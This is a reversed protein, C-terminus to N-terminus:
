GRSLFNSSSGTPCRSPATACFWTALNVVSGAATFGIAIWCHPLCWRMSNSLVLRLQRGTPFRTVILFANCVSEPCPRRIMTRTGMSISFSSSIPCSSSSIPHFVPFSLSISVRAFAFVFLCVRFYCCHCCVARRVVFRLKERFLLSTRFSLWDPALVCVVARSASPLVLAAPQDSCSAIPLGSPRASSVSPLSQSMPSVSYVASTHFISAPFSPSLFKSFYKWFQFKSIWILCM